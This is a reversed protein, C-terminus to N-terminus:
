DHSHDSYSGFRLGEFPGNIESFSIKSTLLVEAVKIDKLTIMGKDTFRVPRHLNGLHFGAVGWMMSDKPLIVYLEDSASRIVVPTKNDFAIVDGDNLETGRPLSLKIKRGGASKAVFHASAREESTLLIVDEDARSFNFDKASGLIKSVVSM